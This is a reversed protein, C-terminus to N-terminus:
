GSPFKAPVLAIAEEAGGVAVFFLHKIFLVFSTVEDHWLDTSKKASTPEHFIDTKNSRERFLSDPATKSELSINTASM